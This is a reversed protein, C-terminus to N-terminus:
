KEAESVALFGLLRETKKDKEKKWIHEICVYLHCLAVCVSTSFHVGWVSRAMLLPMTHLFRCAGGLCLIGLGRQPLCAPLSLYPIHLFPSYSSTAASKRKSSFSLFSTLNGKWVILVCSLCAQWSQGVQGSWNQGSDRGTEMEVSVAWACHILNDHGLISCLSSMLDLLRGCVAPLCHVFSWWVSVVLFWLVIFGSLLCSHVFGFLFGLLFSGAWGSTCAPVTPGLGSGAERGPLLLLLPFLGPCSRPYAPPPCLPCPMTHLYLLCFCSSSTAVLTFSRTRPLQGCTCAPLM